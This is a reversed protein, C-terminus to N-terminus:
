TLNLCSDFLLLGIITDIETAFPAPRDPRRLAKIVHSLKTDPPMSTWFAQGTTTDTGKVLPLPRQTFGVFYVTLGKVEKPTCPYEKENWVVTFPENHTANDMM